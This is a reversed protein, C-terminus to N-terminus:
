ATIMSVQHLSRFAAILNNRLQLSRRRWEDFQRTSRILDAVSRISEAMERRSASPHLPGRM